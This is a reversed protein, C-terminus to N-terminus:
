VSGKAPARSWDRFDPRPCREPARPPKQQQEKARQEAEYARQNRRGLELFEEDTLSSTYPEAHAATTTALIAALLLLRIM